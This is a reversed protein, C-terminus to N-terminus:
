TWPSFQEVSLLVSALRLDFLYIICSVKRDRRHLGFTVARPPPSRGQALCPLSRSFPGSWSAISATSFLGTQGLSLARAQLPLAGSGAFHSRPCLAPTGGRARAAVCLPLAAVSGLAPSCRFPALPPLRRAGAWRRSCLVLCPLRRHRSETSDARSGSRPCKYSGWPKEPGPPVASPRARRGPLPHDRVPQRRGRGWRGPLCQGGGGGSVETLM